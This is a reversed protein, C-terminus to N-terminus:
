PAVSLKEIKEGPAVDQNSVLLCHDADRPRDDPREHGYYYESYDESPKCSKRRLAHRIWDQNTRCHEGPLKERAREGFGRVTEHRACIQNGLDVKKAAIAIIVIKM